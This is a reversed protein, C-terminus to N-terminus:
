TQEPGSGWNNPITCGVCTGLAKPHSREERKVVAWCWKCLMDNGQTIMDEPFQAARKAATTTGCRRWTRKQVPEKPADVVIADTGDTADAATATHEPGNQTDSESDSMTCGLFVLFRCFHLRAYQHNGLMGFFTTQSKQHNKTIVRSKSFPRNEHHKTIKRAVSGRFDRCHPTTIHLTMRHRRMCVAM